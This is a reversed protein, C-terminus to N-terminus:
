SNAVDCCLDPRDIRCSGEDGSTLVGLLKRELPHRALGPLGELLAPLRLNASSGAGLLITRM